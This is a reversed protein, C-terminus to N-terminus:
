STPCYRCWGPVVRRLIITTLEEHVFPKLRQLQKHCDQLIKYQSLEGVRPLFSALAQKVQPVKAAPVAGTRYAGLMPQVLGHEGPETRFWDDIDLRFGEERRFSARLTLLDVISPIDQSGGAFAATLGDNRALEDALEQKLGGTAAELAKYNADWDRLSEWLRPRKVHQSLAGYLPDQTLNAIPKDKTISYDIQQAFKCLDRFHAQAADRWVMIRSERMEREQRAKDINHRVTRAGYGDKAAIGQVPEGNEEHRELWKKRLESTVGLSKVTRAM